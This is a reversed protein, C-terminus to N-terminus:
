RRIPEGSVQGKRAVDERHQLQHLPDRLPLRRIPDECHKQKWEQAEPSLFDMREDIRIDFREAHGGAAEWVRSLMAGAEKASEVGSFVECLRRDKLPKDRLEAPLPDVGSGLIEHGRCRYVEVGNPLRRVFEHAHCFQAASKLTDRVPRWVSRSLFDPRRPHVRFTYGEFPDGHRRFFGTGSLPGLGVAPEVELSEVPRDLVAEVHAWARDEAQKRGALAEESGEAVGNPKCRYWITKRTVGDNCVQPQRYSVTFNEGRDDSVYMVRYPLVRPDRPLRPDVAPAGAPAAEAPLFSVLAHRPYSGDWAHTDIFTPHVELEDKEFDVTSSVLRCLTAAVQPDGDAYALVSSQVGAFSDLESDSYELDGGDTGVQDLSSLWTVHDDPDGLSADDAQRDPVIPTAGRTMPGVTGVHYKLRTPSSFQSPAAMRVTATAKPAPAQDEASTADADRAQAQDEASKKTTANRAPAQDEASKKTTANRAPAQGEAGKKTETQCDKGDIEELFRDM